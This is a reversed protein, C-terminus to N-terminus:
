DEVFEITAIEKLRDTLAEIISARKMGELHKRIKPLAEDFDLDRAPERGIVALIHSGAKTRVVESVAGVRPGIGALAADLEPPLSGKGIPGLHGAEYRPDGSLEEILTTVDMGDLVRERLGTLRTKAEEVTLPDAGQALRISIHSVQPSEELRFLNRYEDYFTRAEAEPVSLLTNAEEEVLAAIMRDRRLGDRVDEIQMGRRALILTLPLIGGVQDAMDGLELEISEEDIVCGRRTSEQYLLEQGVLQMLAERRIEVEVSTTLARGSRAYQSRVEGVILELTHRGIPSGNVRAVPAPQLM